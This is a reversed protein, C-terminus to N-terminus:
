NKRDRLYREVEEVLSRAAGRGGPMEEDDDGADAREELQSVYDSTEEDEQV